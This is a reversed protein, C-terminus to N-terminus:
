PTTQPNPTSSAPTGTSSAASSSASALPSSPPPALPAPSSSPLLPPDTTWQITGNTRVVEQPKVAWEAINTFTVGAMKQGRPSFSYVKLTPKERTFKEIQLEFFTAFRKYPPSSRLPKGDNGEVVMLEQFTHEAKKMDGGWEHFTGSAHTDKEDKGAPYGLDVGALCIEGCGLHHALNLALHAVSNGGDISDTGVKLKYLGATGHDMLICKEGPWATMIDPCVSQTCCLVTHPPPEPAFYWLARNWDYMECEVVFDPFVGHKMAQRYTRGVIIFCSRPDKRIRKLEEWQSDLSPGAAVIVAYNRRGEKPGKIRRLAVGDEIWKANKMSNRMPMNDETLIRVSATDFNQLDMLTGVIDIFAQTNKQEPDSLFEAGLWFEQHDFMWRKLKEDNEWTVGQENEGLTLSFKEEPTVLRIIHKGAKKRLEITDLVDKGKPIGIVWVWQGEGPKM